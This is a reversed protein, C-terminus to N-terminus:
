GDRDHEYSLSTSNQQLMHAREMDRNNMVRVLLSGTMLM